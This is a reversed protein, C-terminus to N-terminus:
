VDAGARVKALLDDLNEYGEATPSDGAGTLSAPVVSPPPADLWRLLSLFEQKVEEARLNLRELMLLDERKAESAPSESAAIERVRALIWLSVEIADMSEKLLFALKSRETGHDLLKGNSQRLKEVLVETISCVDILEQVEQPTYHHAERRLADRLPRLSSHVVQPVLTAAM